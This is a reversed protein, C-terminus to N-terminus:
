TLQMYKFFFVKMHECFDERSLVFSHSSDLKLTTEQTTVRGQHCRETSLNLDKTLM